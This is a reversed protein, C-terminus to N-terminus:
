LEDMQSYLKKLLDKFMWICNSHQFPLLAALVEAKPMGHFRKQACSGFLSNLASITHKSKGTVSFYYDHCLSFMDRHDNELLLMKMCHISILFLRNSSMFYSKRTEIKFLTINLNINRIKGEDFHKTIKHAVTETLQSWKGILSSVLIGNLEDDFSAVSEKFKQGFEAENAGIEDQIQEPKLISHRIDDISISQWEATKTTEDFRQNIKLPGFPDQSQNQLNKFVSKREDIFNVEAGYNNFISYKQSQTSAEETLIATQTEANM